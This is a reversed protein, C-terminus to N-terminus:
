DDSDEARVIGGLGDPRPHRKQEPDDIDQRAQDWGTPEETMMSGDIEDEDVLPKEHKKMRPPGSVNDDHSKGVNPM